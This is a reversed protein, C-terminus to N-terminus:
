KDLGRKNYAYAFAVAAILIWGLIVSISFTVGTGVTEGKFIKELM